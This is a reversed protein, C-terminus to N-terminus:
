VASLIACLARTCVTPMAISLVITVVARIITTSVAVVVTKWFVRQGIRVVTQLAKQGVAGCFATLIMTLAIQLVIPGVTQGIKELITLDVIGVVALFVM